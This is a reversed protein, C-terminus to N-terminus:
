KDMEKPELKNTKNNVAELHEGVLLAPINVGLEALTEDTVIDGQKGLVTNETLIKYSTM